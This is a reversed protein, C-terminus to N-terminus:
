PNEVWLIQTTLADELYYTNIGGYKVKGGQM